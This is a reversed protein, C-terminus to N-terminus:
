FSTATSPNNFIMTRKTMQTVLAADLALELYSKGRNVPVKVSAPATDTLLQQQRAIIQAKYEEISITKGSNLEDIKKQMNNKIQRVDNLVQQEEPSITGANELTGLRKEESLVHDIRDVSAQLDEHIHLKNLKEKTAILTKEATDSIKKAKDREKSLRRIEKQDPPLKANEIDFKAQATQFEVTSDAAQKEAKQLDALQTQYRIQRKEITGQRGELAGIKQSIETMEDDIAQTSRNLNKLENKEVILLDQKKKLEDLEHTVDHLTGDLQHTTYETKKAFSLEKQAKKLAQSAAIKRDTIAKKEDPTRGLNFREATEAQKFEKEVTDFAKQQVEVHKAHDEYQKLQKERATLKQVEADLNKQNKLADNYITTKTTKLPDDDPLADLVTKANTVADEADKLEKQADKLEKSIAASDPVNKKYMALDMDEMAQQLELQAKDAKNTAEILLPDDDNIGQTKLTDIETTADNFAQQKALVSDKHKRLGAYEKGLTIMDKAVETKNAILKDKHKELYAKLQAKEGKAFRKNSLINTYKKVETIDTELNKIDDLISTKKNELSNFRTQESPTRASSPLKNIEDDLAKIENELAAKKTTLGTEHQELYSSLAKKNLKKKPAFDAIYGDVKVIDKKLTSINKGYEGINTKLSDIHQVAKNATGKIEHSFAQTGSLDEVSTKGRKVVNKTKDFAKKGLDRVDDVAVTKVIKGSVSAVTNLGKGTSVIGKALTSGSEAKKVTWEAGKIVPKVALTATKKVGDGVVTGVRSLNRGTKALLGATRSGNKEATLLASKLKSFGTKTGKLAGLGARNALLISLLQGIVRGAVYSNQKRVEDLSVGVEHCIESVLTSWMTPNLMSLVAKFTDLPHAAAEISTFINEIFANQVGQGLDTDGFINASKTYKEMDIKMNRLIDKKEINGRGFSSFPNLASLYSRMNKDRVAEFSAGNLIEKMAVQGRSIMEDSSREKRGQAGFNLVPIMEVDIFRQIARLVGYQKGITNMYNRMTSSMQMGDKKYGISSLISSKASLELKQIQNFDLEPNVAHIAQAYASMYVNVYNKIQKEYTKLTGDLSENANVMISSEKAAVQKNKQLETDYKKEMKIETQIKEAKKNVIGLKNEMKGTKTNKVQTTDVKLNPIQTTSIWNLLKYIERVKARVIDRRKAHDKEQLTYLSGTIQRLRTELGGLVKTELIAAKAANGDTTNKIQQKLLNVRNVVGKTVNDPDFIAAREQADAKKDKNVDVGAEFAKKVINSGDFSM